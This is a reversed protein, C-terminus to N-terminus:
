YFIALFGSLMYTSKDFSFDSTKKLFLIRTAVSLPGKENQVHYGSLVRAPPQQM